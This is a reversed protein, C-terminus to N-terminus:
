KGVRREESRPCVTPWHCSALLKLEQRVVGDGQFYELAQTRRGLPQRRFQKVVVDAARQELLDGLQRLVIERAGLARDQLRVRAIDQLMGSRRQGQDFEAGAGGALGADQNLLQQAPLASRQKVRNINRRGRQLLRFRLEPPLKGPQSDIGDDGVVGSAYGRQTADAPALQHEVDSRANPIEFWVLGYLNKAADAPRQARAVSQQQAGIEGLTRLNKQGGVVIRLSNRRLKVLVNQRAQVALEISVELEIAEAVDRHPVAALRADLGM